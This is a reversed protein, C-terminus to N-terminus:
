LNKSENCNIENINQKFLTINTYLSILREFSQRKLLLPLFIPELMILNNSVRKNDVHKQQEHREKLSGRPLFLAELCVRAQQSIDKIAYM